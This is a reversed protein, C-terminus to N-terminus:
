STSTTCSTTVVAAAAAQGMRSHSAWHKGATIAVASCHYWQSDICDFVRIPVFVTNLFSWTLKYPTNGSNWTETELETELMSM